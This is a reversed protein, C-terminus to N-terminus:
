LSAIQTFGPYSQSESLYEIAFANTTHRAGARSCYQLAAISNLKNPFIIVYWRENPKLPMNARDYSLLYTQLPLGYCM